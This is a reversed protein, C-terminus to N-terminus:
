YLVEVLELGSKGTCIWKQRHLETFARQADLPVQCVNPVTKARM